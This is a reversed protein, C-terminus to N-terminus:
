EKAARAARAVDIDEFSMVKMKGLVVSRTSRRVKAENNMKTLLQNQDHLLSREAFSIQAAHALKQVHRELRQTSTENLTHADQKILSHLSAIGEVSAPTVPTQPVEDQHFSGVGIEDARPITSQAPPQPTVRLVRDTNLPFLGCAAWTKMINR